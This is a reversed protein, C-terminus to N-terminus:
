KLLWEVAQQATNEVSSPVSTLAQPVTAAYANQVVQPVGHEGALWLPTPAAVGLMGPLDFYRAGGPLFEPAHLGHVDGFRFGGTDIAARGVAGRCQGLAAAAWPGAGELGVLWVTTNDTQDRALAVTTLVDHVRRAFLSPNYGFTYAAAERPNEVRRTEKIPQGDELFEGQYLLDVGLVAVGEDLLRKIPPRLKGDAAFLGGKGTEHLWIATKSAPDQPLLWLTPLESGHQRNRTL